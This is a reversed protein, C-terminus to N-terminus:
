APLLARVARALAAIQVPRTTDVCIVPGLGIPRASRAFAGAPMTRAHGAHAPHRGAARAAYRRAAEAVPCQCHVEVPVDTLRGVRDALRPDDPWFNAEVVVSPATAALAWLLEMSAAGLRRSWALDADQGLADHLTEKIQDKALLAFGLEAALPQALTTKGTGPPGSVLVLRRARCGQRAAANHGALPMRPPEPIVHQTM